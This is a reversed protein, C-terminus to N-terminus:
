KLFHVVLAAIVPSVFTAVIIAAIQIWNGKKQIKNAKADPSSEELHASVKTKLETFEECLGPKGNGFLAKDHRESNDIVTSLSSHMELLLEDRKQATLAM